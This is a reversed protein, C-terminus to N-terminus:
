VMTAESRTGDLRPQLVESPMPFDNRKRYRYTKKSSRPHITKNHKADRNEERDDADGQHATFLLGDGAQEAITAAAAITTAAAAITAAATQETAMAAAAALTMAAATALAATTTTM